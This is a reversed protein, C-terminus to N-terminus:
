KWGQRGAPLRELAKFVDINDPFRRNMDALLERVEAGRGLAPGLEVLRSVVSALNYNVAFAKEYMALAEDPKGLREAIMARTEYAEAYYPDIKLAIENYKASDALAARNGRDSALLNVRALMYFNDANYPDILTGYNLYKIAEDNNGLNLNAIALHSVTTGELPLVNLAKQFEAIAEPFRRMELYTKGTKYHLDSFFSIFSLWVLFVAASLVGALPLWPLEGPSLNIPQPRSEEKSGAVMVLGWLIWFISTIAVVGFSFQNQVLYALVAALLGGLLLKQEPGATKLKRFGTLFVTGLLWLYVFFSILGKTVPVDLAENHNRDQKVHFTEKFRFLDTEYRPFIMKLVEPGIGFVPNDALIRFGSKWTEGRSGAAGKLALSTSDGGATQEEIKAAATGGASIEASFRAFPSYESNIMTFASVIVIALALLSLKKWNDIIWRRGVALAFLTAGTFFGMYGGRSQTYLLSVYIMVLCSGILLDFVLPPLKQYSYAFLLAGATILAFGSYWLIIDGADLFYIMFVFGAQSLLFYALPALQRGWDIEPPAPRKELFLVLGAFFAMLVYAAFFNPQGITGIVREATPVGGWMYPDWEQRQIVGYLSQLTAASVIMLIIRKVQDFSSVYNTTIFFLLGYVYWTSLGEFRGYFGAFSTFVHVSTLTAVTTTLLFTLVPWDLPTRFFRHGGIIVKCSWLGAAVVVFVRMWAVKTGSFVIGLRRDFIVTILFIAALLVLEVCLDFSLWGPRLKEPRTEKSKSGTKKKM